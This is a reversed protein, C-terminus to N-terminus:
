QYVLADSLLETEVRVRANFRNVFFMGSVAVGLGTLTSIMAHSVGYAMARADVSGKLAMIDFVELMGTVTGLLGLLPCIPIIVRMVPLTSAMATAMEGIMAQRIRRSTWSRRNDRAEWARRLEARRQPFVFAFFWYREVILTWMVLAALFIWTLVPGGMDFLDDLSEFPAALAAPLAGSIEALM